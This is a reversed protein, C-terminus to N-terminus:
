HLVRKASFVMEPVEVDFQVGNDAVMRYSGKMTGYPTKLAVGSSYRFTEGPAISPQEGVVGIGRVEQVQGHADTIVWHRSMLKAAIGGTNTIKIHYGFVYLDNPVDSQGEDYFPCPEIQFYYNNHAM